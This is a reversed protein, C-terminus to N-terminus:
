YLVVITQDIVIPLVSTQDIVIPVVSTEFFTWIKKKSKLLDILEGDDKSLFAASANSSSQGNSIEIQRSSFSCPWFCNFDYLIYSYM